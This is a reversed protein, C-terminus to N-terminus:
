GENANYGLTATLNAEILSEDALANSPLDAYFRNCPLMKLMKMMM